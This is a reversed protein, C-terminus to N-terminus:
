HPYRKRKKIVPNYIYTDHQEKLSIEYESTYKNRRYNFHTGFLTKGTDLVNRNKKVWDMLHEYKIPHWKHDKMLYPWPPVVPLPPPLPISPPPLGDLKVADLIKPLYKELPPPFADLWHTITLFIALENPVADEIRVPIVRKGNAKALGVEAQVPESSDANLSFVLLVVRSEKVAITLQRPYPIGPILDRKDMFCKIGNNQLYDYVLDAAVQDKDKVSHSIFVHNM